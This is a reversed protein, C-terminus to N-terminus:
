GQDEQAAALLQYFSLSIPMFWGTLSGGVSNLPGTRGNVPIPAYGEFTMHSWFRPPQTDLVETVDGHQTILADLAYLMAEVDSVLYFPWVWINFTVRRGGPRGYIEGEGSLGPFKTRWLEPRPSDRQPNEWSGLLQTNGFIDIYAM